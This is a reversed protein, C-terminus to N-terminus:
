FALPQWGLSAAQQTGPTASLSSYDASGQPALVKWDKEAWHLPVPVVALRVQTGGSVTTETLDGLLLVTVEIQSYDRIQYDSPSFSISAGQPVPGAVAIGMQARSATTGQAAQTAANKYSPDAVLGLVAAATSPNLTSGVVSSFEVAASVAGTLTQPYGTSVGITYRTGAVLQLPKQPGAAVAGGSGIGTAQGPSSGAAPAAAPAATKHSLVTQMCLGAVAIVALAVAAIILYRTVRRPASLFQSTM